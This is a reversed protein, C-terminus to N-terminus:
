SEEDNKDGPQLREPYTFVGDREMSRMNDFSSFEVAEQIIVDPVDPLGLFALLRKLEDHPQRHIDEYKLLLFGKPVHRNAAWINYFRIFNDVAGMDSRLFDSISGEFRPAERDPFFRRNRRTEHFYYSVAVDRLDRILLIM